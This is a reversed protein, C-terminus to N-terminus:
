LVEALREELIIRGAAEILALHSFAQPVNGLHRDSHADFEEAYLGLPSAIRLLRELLDRARDKEGIISLASVLWFSCILFTGEEGRLGDDTQETRYRLVFGNETLGSAVSEVTAAMREDSGPLFGTLAALLTSADLADSEYHQRLVGSASVGHTLIDGRIAEATTRWEAERESEGALAALQAARDLAVWCMLKSSVYHRPEGRAEWIGQDPQQWVAQVCAAQQEIVPWLRRPLRQSRRTHLLISDLVHELSTYAAEVTAPAALDASWSLACFAREGASLVHRAKVRGGEIGLMLDSVLRLTTGAGTADAAHRDDGALTWRAPTRGYDFVPECVLEVEVSGEICEVTRVLLHEADDDAPPRTHPTVRDDHTAPALTLADRVVLWGGPTKWTTVLVNTGPEYRRAAPHNIGFPAVRFYGAQRDLLSAFVSPADFAPVCMWDISGDPAVLAGTHCDSLFAYDAIPTFPSRRSM